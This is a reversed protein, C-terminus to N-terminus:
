EKLFMDVTMNEFGSFVYTANKLVSPDGLGVSIMGANNAAEIGAVSDEFVVCDTVPVELRLAAVLFVEPDPKPASVENGDIIIDFNEKLGVRELIGAANRSASGLAICLGKEKVKTIFNVVGPLIDKTTLGDIFTLYNENKRHMMDDFQEAEVEVRGWELIKKLSAIRSVGKLEENQSETLTVGVEAAVKKWALFHFHATDVIVGDLDFIFAKKM